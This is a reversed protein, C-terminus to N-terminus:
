PTSIMYYSVATDVTDTHSNVPSTDSIGSLLPSFGVQLDTAKHITYTKGPESFWRVVFEGGGAGAQPTVASVAFFSGSDLPSTGALTEALNALGDGDYDDAGLVDWVTQIADAPNDDVLQQDVTDAIGNLNIDAPSVNFIGLGAADEATLVVGGQARIRLGYTLHPLSLASVPTLPASVDMVAGQNDGGVLYVLSGASAAGFGPAAASQVLAPSAPNSIDLIRFLSDGDGIFAQDGQVSVSVVPSLETSYTGVTGLTTRDLIRLGSGGCAAYFYSADATLDFVYGPPINSAIQIPTSPTSVDLLNIQHGDTLALHSGSLAVRRVTALGPTPDTSVLVPAAANTVSYIKLGGLAEAVYALSDSVTLCRPNTSSVVTAMWEPAAPDTLNHVQFGAEDGAVFLANGSMEADVARAGAGFTAVWVPALPSSVDWLEGGGFGAAVVLTDGVQVVDSAEGATSDTDIVALSSPDVTLLGGSGAAIYLASGSATMSRGASSLLVHTTIVPTAPTSTDVRFLGGNADSVLVAGSVEALSVGATIERNEGVQAPNASPTLVQVGDDMDLVMLNPAVYILSRAAGATAGASILTPAAPTTVDLGRVGGLGDAIFLTSGVLVLDHANGSTDFTAVQVPAAPTSVDVIHVGSNGAAAYVTSAQVVLSEIMGSLRIQGTRVPTSPTQIDWIDLTAGNGLYVTSGSAAVAQCFGGISSSAGVLHPTFDQAAVVISQTTSAVWNTTGDIVTAAELVRTGTDLGLTPWFLHVEASEGAVLLPASLSALIEGTATDRILVTCETAANGTHSLTVVAGAEDGSQIDGVPQLGTAVVTQTRAVVSNFCTLELDFAKATNASSSLHLEAALWNRGVALDEPAIVFPVYTTADAGTVPASALTSGDVSGTPMNVRDIEQGNLYLVAGDVIRALGNVEIPTFDMTFEKRFWTTIDNTVPVTNSVSLSNLFVDYNEGSGAEFNWCQLQAIEQNADAILSGTFNWTNTGVSVDASYAAPGTLQFAIQLGDGTFPISSYTSGSADKVYYNNTGGLFYFEWLSNSDANQLAVGVSKESSVWGNDLAMQVVQGSSLAGGAFPRVAETTGSSAWLGWARGGTDIGDSGDANGTSAGMFQGGTGSAEIAWDGFGTGGNDGSAWGDDYAADAADDAAESSPPAGGSDNSLTTVISDVGYGLPAAGLSWFGDYYNAPDLTWPAGSIDLGDDLYRWEAGRAILSNTELGNAVIVTLTQTNNVTQVEDVVIDAVAQLTHSGIAVGTTDWVFVVNSSAGSALSSVFATGIIQVDTIDSLTVGFSEPEGGANQFTVVVNTPAGPPVVSDLTFSEAVVDRISRFLTVTLSGMNDALDVESALDTAHAELDYNGTSLGATSWNFTLNTVAGAGLSWVVQSGILTAGSTVNSLAVTFSATAADTQNSISIGVAVDSNVSGTTPSLGTVAIDPLSPTFDISLGTFEGGTSSVNPFNTSVSANGKMFGVGTSMNPGQGNISTYEAKFYYMGDPVVAGNTDQCDWVVTHTQPQSNITASTVGDVDTYNGRASTWKYLYGIEWNAHRCLTKIFQGSSNEVWVVAVNRPDFRGSYSTTGVSFTASGPTQASAGSPGWGVAVVVLSLGFFFRATKM